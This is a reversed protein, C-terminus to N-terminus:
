IQKKPNQLNEYIRKLINDLKDWDEGVVIPKLALLEERYSIKNPINNLLFIPIRKYFAMGMELFTNGGIYGAIGNKEYNAIYVANSEEIKRFHGLILDHQIKALADEELYHYDVMSPLFVEYSREELSNKIGYLREYFKASSCLTIKM